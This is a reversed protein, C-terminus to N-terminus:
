SNSNSRSITHFGGATFTASPTFGGSTVGAPLGSVSYIGNVTGNGSRLSTIDFTPTSATGYVSVGTQTGVSVSGISGPTSGVIVDFKWEKNNTMGTALAIM